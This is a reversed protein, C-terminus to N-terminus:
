EITMTSRGTVPITPFLPTVPQFHYTVAVTMRNGSSCSPSCAITPSDIQGPDLAVTNALAQSRIGNTDDPNVIGYRVGDRAANAVVNYAYIGRGLDITGMFILILIPLVLAFEVLAQGRADVRISKMMRM